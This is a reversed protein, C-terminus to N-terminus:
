KVGPMLTSTPRPAKAYELTTGTWPAPHDPLRVTVTEPADFNTVTFSRTTPDDQKTALLRVTGGAPVLPLLFNGNRDTTASTQTLWAGGVSGEASPDWYQWHVTLPQRGNVEMVRGELSTIGPIRVDHVKSGNRLLEGTTLTPLPSGELSWRWRGKPLPLPSTQGSDNLSAYITVPEQGEEPIRDLRVGPILSLARGDGYALRLTLRASDRDLLRDEIVLDDGPRVSIDRAVLRAHGGSTAVLLASDHRDVTSEFELGDLTWRDGSDVRASAIAQKRDFLINTWGGKEIVQGARVADPPVLYVIPPEARSRVSFSGPRPTEGERRTQRTLEELDLEPEASGKGWANVSYALRGSLRAHQILQITRVPPEAPGQTYSAVSHGQATVTVQFPDRTRARAIPIVAQGQEDTSAASRSRWPDQHVVMVGRAGVSVSANVIPENSPFSRVELATDDPRTHLRVQREATVGARPSKWSIVQAWSSGRRSVRLLDKSRPRVRLRARGEADTVSPQPRAGPRAASADLLLRDGLRVSAGEVPGNMDVVVLDLVAPENSSPKASVRPAFAAGEGEADATLEPRSLPDLPRSAFPADIALESQDGGSHAM